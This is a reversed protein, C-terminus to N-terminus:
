IIADEDNLKRKKNTKGIQSDLDSDSNSQEFESEDSETKKLPRKRSRTNSM